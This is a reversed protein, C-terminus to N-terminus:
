FATEYIAEDTIHKNTVLKVLLDVKCATLEDDSIGREDAILNLQEAIRAYRESVSYDTILWDKIKHTLDGDNYVDFMGRKDLRRNEYNVVRQASAILMQLARDEPPEQPPPAAPPLAVQDAPAMNLPVLYKDGINGPLPNMDELARIDNASLWGWNRGIAYSDYRSKLDGRLLGEVVHKTYFIEKQFFLKRDYEQEFRVAWPRVTDMVWEINQHEINTFHANSLDKLKHPPINFWRAWEETSFKLSEVMQADGHTLNTSRLKIGHELLAIRHANTLGTIGQQLQGRFRAFAADDLHGDTEAVMSVHGGNKFYTSGYDRQSVHLGITEAALQILPYGQRGDYGLGPVHLVDEARLIYQTGGAWTEYFLTKDPSRRPWTERPSLPWLAVPTGDPGRQIEAYANGWDICNAALTERFVMATMEPNPQKHLLRHVPHSRAVERGERAGRTRRYANLPLSGLTESIIRVGCYYPSLSYANSQTAKVGSATEAGGLVNLLWAAPNRLTTTQSRVTLRRWADKLRSFM